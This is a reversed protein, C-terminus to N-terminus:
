LWELPVSWLIYSFVFFLAKGLYSLHRQTVCLQLILVQTCSFYLHSSLPLSAPPPPPLPPPTTNQENYGSARLTGIGFDTWSNVPSTLCNWGHQLTLLFSDWLNFCLSPILAGIRVNVLWRTIKWNLRVRTRHSLEVSWHPTNWSVEFRFLLLFGQQELFTCFCLVGLPSLSFVLDTKERNRRCLICFVQDGNHGRGCCSPLETWYSCIRHFFLNLKGNTTSCSTTQNLLPHQQLEWAKVFEWLIFWGEPEDLGVFALCRQAGKKIYILLSRPMGSM